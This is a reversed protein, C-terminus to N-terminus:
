FRRIVAHLAVVPSSPEKAMTTGSPEKVRCTYAGPSPHVKTPHNPGPPNVVTLSFTVRMSTSPSFTTSM